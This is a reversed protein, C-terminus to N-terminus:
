RDVERRLLVCTTTGQAYLTGAADVVRAEATAIRAGAHVIQAEALLRGTAVTIPRVLKVALDVTTYGVGAPLTSHVACGLVSDLLTAALGGHVTGIPNYHWEAPKVAFTAEGDGISVIEMGMTAAMPAGPVEGRAIAELYDRGSMSLMTELSGNPDDWSYTRVRAKEDVRHVHEDVATM